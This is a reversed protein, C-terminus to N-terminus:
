LQQELSDFMVEGSYFIHQSWLVLTRAMLRQCAALDAPFRLRPLSHLLYSSPMIRTFTTPMPRPMTMDASNDDVADAWCPVALPIAPVTFSVDPATSGPTVTSAALGANISFTRLTTVSLSPRYLM